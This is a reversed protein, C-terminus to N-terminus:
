KLRALISSFNVTTVMSLCVTGHDLYTANVDDGDMELVRKVQSPPLETGTLCESM